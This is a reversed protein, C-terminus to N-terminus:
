KLSNVTMQGDPQLFDLALLIHLVVHFARKSLLFKLISQCILDLALILHLLFLLEPAQQNLIASKIAVRSAHNM